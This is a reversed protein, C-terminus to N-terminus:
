EGCGRKAAEIVSPAKIRGSQGTAASGRRLVLYEGRGLHKVQVKHGAGAFECRYVYSGDPLEAVKEIATAASPGLLLGFVLATMIRKM